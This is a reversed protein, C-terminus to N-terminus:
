ARTKRGNLFGQLGSGQPTKPVEVKPLKARAAPTMGFESFYSRMQKLYKDIISLLPNPMIWGNPSSVTIKQGGMEKEAAIWKAYVSCYATLSTTDIKKLLKAQTLEPVIRRWEEKGIECLADPPEPIEIVEEFQMEATEPIQRKGPNGRLLHINTPIKKRGRTM